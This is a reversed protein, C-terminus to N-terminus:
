CRRYWRVCGRCIRPPEAVMVPSTEPPLAKVPLVSSVPPMRVSEPAFRRAVALESVSSPPVSRSEPIPEVFPWVKEAKESSEVEAISRLLVVESM